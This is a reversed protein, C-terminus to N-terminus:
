QGLHESSTLLTHTNAPSIPQLRDIKVSSIPALRKAIAQASSDLFEAQVFPTYRILCFWSLRSLWDKKGLSLM